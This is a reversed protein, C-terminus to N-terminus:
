KNRLYFRAFQKLAKARHSIKIQNEISGQAFTKTENDPIFLRNFPSHSSYLGKVKASIRGRCIGKFLFINRRSNVYAIVAKFYAKRNKNKLLKLIGDYGLSKFVHKTFVGPFDPYANFFIGSDDVVFPHSIIDMVHRAKNVVINELRSDVIEDFKFGRGEVTIDFKNLISSAEKIKDKNSSIFIIKKPKKNNEM